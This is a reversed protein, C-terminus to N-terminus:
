RLHTRIRECPNLFRLTAMPMALGFFVDLALYAPCPAPGTVRADMAPPM